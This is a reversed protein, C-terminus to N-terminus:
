TVDLFGPHVRYSYMKLVRSVAKRWISSWTCTCLWTLVCLIYRVRKLTPPLQAPATIKPPDILTIVDYRGWVLETAFRRGGDSQQHSQHVVRERRGSARRRLLQSWGVWDHRWGSHGSTVGDRLQCTCRCNIRNMSVKEYLFESFDIDINDQMISQSTFWQSKTFLANNSVGVPTQTFGPQFRAPTLLVNRRRPTHSRLQSTVSNAANFSSAAAM